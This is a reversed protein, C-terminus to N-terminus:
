WHLGVQSACRLLDDGTGDPLIVDHQASGSQRIPASGSHILPQLCWGNMMIIFWSSAVVPQAASSPALSQMRFRQEFVILKSGASFFVPHPSLDGFIQQFALAM